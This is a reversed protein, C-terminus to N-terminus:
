LKASTLTLGVVSEPNMATLIKYVENITAGTTIIDDILLIKKGDIQFDKNFIYSDIPNKLRESYDLSSQKKTKRVKLVADKLYEVGTLESLREALLEGQNFGRKSTSISDMPVCVISDAVTKTEKYSNYLFDAFFKYYYIRNNFKYDNFVKRFFRNYVLPFHVELGGDTKRKGDVFEFKSMCESCLYLGDREDGCIACFNRDSFFLNKIREM